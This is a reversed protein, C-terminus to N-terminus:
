PRRAHDPRRLRGLPPWGAVESARIRARCWCSWGLQGLAVNGITLVAHVSARGQERESSEAFYDAQVVVLGIEDAANGSRICVRSEGEAERLRAVRRIEQWSQAM